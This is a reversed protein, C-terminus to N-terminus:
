GITIDHSCNLSGGGEHRAGAALPSYHSTSITVTNCRIDLQLQLLTDRTFLGLLPHTIDYAFLSIAFISIDTFNRRRPSRSLTRIFESGCGIM